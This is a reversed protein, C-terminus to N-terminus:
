RDGQACGVQFSPRVAFNEFGFIDLVGIFRPEAPKKGEPLEEPEAAISANIKGM